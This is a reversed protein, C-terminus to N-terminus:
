YVLKVTTGDPDEVRLARSPYQAERLLRQVDFPGDAARGRAAITMGSGQRGEILGRAVLDEYALVITNRSVGLVRALLRTSPLRAGAVGDRVVAAGLQESLQVYLPKPSSRDPAVTPLFVDGRRSVPVSLQSKAARM